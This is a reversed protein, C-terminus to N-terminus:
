ANPMRSPAPAAAKAGFDVMGALPGGGAKVHAGGPGHCAECQLQGHGFPGHPDDPRAHKTRFIGTVTSDGHCGLCTDAGQDSYASAIRADNPPGPISNASHSVDVLGIAAALISPVSALLFRLPARLTQM